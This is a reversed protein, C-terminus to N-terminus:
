HNNTNHTTYTHTRGHRSYTQKVANLQKDTSTTEVESDGKLTRLGWEWAWFCIRGEQFFVRARGEGM